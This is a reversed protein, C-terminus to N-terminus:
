RSSFCTLTPRCMAPCRNRALTPWICSLGHTPAKSPKGCNRRMPAFAGNFRELRFHVIDRCGAMLKQCATQSISGGGDDTWKSQGLYLVGDNKDFHVLDLGNDDFGDTVCAGAQDPELKCLLMLGYAAMARSLFAMERERDPKGSYDSMDVRGDFLKTLASRIRQVHIEAM